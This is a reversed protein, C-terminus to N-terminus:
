LSANAEAVKYVFPMVLMKFSILFVFFHYTGNLIWINLPIFAYFYHFFPPNKVMLGKFQYDTNLIQLL